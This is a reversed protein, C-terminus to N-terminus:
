FNDLADFFDAGSLSSDDSGQYHEKNKYKNNAPGDVIDDPSSVIKIEGFGSAGKPKAALVKMPDVEPGLDMAGAAAAASINKHLNNPDPNQIDLLISKRM